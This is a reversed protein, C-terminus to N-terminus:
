PAGAPPPNRGAPDAAPSTQPSSASAPTGTTTCQPLPGIGPRCVPGPGIPSTSAAMRRQRRHDRVAPRRLVGRVQVQDLAEGVDVDVGGHDAGVEHVGERRQWSLIARSRRVPRGPPGPCRSGSCGRGRHAGIERPASRGAVAVVPQTGHEPVVTRPQEAHGSVHPSTGPLTVYPPTARAAAAGYLRGPSSTPSRRHRAAPWPGRRHRWSRGQQPQGPRGPAALRRQGLADDGLDLPLTSTPM